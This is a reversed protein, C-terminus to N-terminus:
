KGEVPLVLTFTSGMGPKSKVEIRGGNAEVLKRSVALGLGIGKSKTTFLPEFLKNMNEPTIGTGTDTVAIEVMGKRNIASITLEGRNLGGATPRLPTTGRPSLMAQCANVTLNGLVQEMQRMDIFVRPLDENLNLTAHIVQPVPFRALTRQVLESVVVPEKDMSELRAFDLLDTIIKESNHVEQEIMAHYQRVKEDADPQIYKLYYIANSIIGLPNRLEHGVGGALQGLLALKEQRVIKEQALRLERTREEVRIELEANLRRMEEEVQKRATIDRAVWLTSDENLPLISTEFPVTRDGIPLEYEIQAPQNTDMVKQLINVFQNAQDPPFVDQLPKGILEQPPKILLAPNTPAIKRYVGVRDIVMVLDRMSAFLARLEAESRRLAEEAQKRTIVIGVQSSVFELMHQEREGYAKPDTYHQVVMAGITKGEVILPVGLWIASAVGLLKVEGRRELEDHVAQTCLLSKGTRLVYASLGRAPQIGGMFPEDEADRFYPFRLMNQSEDYLTIYFNEAPMVSSIIQHIQPYLDELSQTTEAATAIRYIAEQLTQAQKREAIEQQAERYLRANQLALSVIDAASQIMWVDAETFADAHDSEVNLAGLLDVGRRMLAVFESRLAPEGPAKVDNVYHPDKMVDRVWQTQGTKFANGIVGKHIPYTAGLAAALRGAAGRMVWHTGNEDPLAICVHPYGTLRVITEVASRAILEPELQGSVARLVQYLIERQRESQKKETIDRLVGLIYSYNDITMVSGSLSITISRGDKRKGKLEMDKVHGKEKLESIMKARDNPDQYLGLQLSTRGIVEERTYGWVEKFVPNVEIIKGDELTSWYFADMSTMFSVRFKEESQKLAGEALKRETIDEVTGEYYLPQDNEDRVLRASERVFISSGDKRKWASELGLVEGDREIHDQFELRPYGPEYGESALDRHSLDKFSEYGLMNVLAPNAMLIRGDPSTRYMGITANEYLSRFREENERLKEDALKRDTIDRIVGHTGVVKGDDQVASALVEIDAQTGDSRLLATTLSVQSIKGDAVKKFYRGVEMISSPPIFELFTKGVLQDPNEFGHIRALAPNAFTLRGTNDTIFIGDSIETVLGRYKQESERLADEMQTNETIDHASSLAGTVNGDKDKLVRCWWALLRKEGDKRRQWSELYVVNKVGQFLPAVEKYVDQEGEFYYDAKKGIVDRGFFELGSRNAWTYVKDQDVEMLIDPVAALIAEQRISLDRLAEETRNRETIDSFTSLMYLPKGNGDRRLASGADVWVISGNKHIFRKNFRVSEKAGSMLSEVARQTLEVDEPYTIEQWKRNKMEKQSYGLMKCFAHNVDIEGTPLTISKGTVSHEFMYKFKDESEIQAAEVQMAQRREGARRLEREVVPLFLALDDTQFCDYTGAQILAVATEKELNDAVVIFPIDMGSEQLIKLATFADLKLLDCASIVIEWEQKKLAKRMQTPTRVQEFAPKYGGKKLQRLILRTDSELDGVILVSLPKAM